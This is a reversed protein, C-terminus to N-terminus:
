FHCWTLWQCWTPASSEDLWLNDTMAEQNIRGIAGNQTAACAMAITCAPAILASPEDLMFAYVWSSAVTNVNKLRTAFHTGLTATDGIDGYATSPWPSGYPSTGLVIHLGGFLNWGSEALWGMQFPCSTSFAVYDLNGDTGCGKWASTEGFCMDQNILVGHPGAASATANDSPSCTAVDGSALSNACRHANNATWCRQNPNGCDADTNCYKTTDIRAGCSGHGSVYYITSATTDTFLNDQGGTRWSSEMMDTNYVSYNGYIHDAIGGASQLVNGFGTADAKTNCIDGYGPCMNTPQSSPCSAGPQTSYYQIYEYSYHWARAESAVLLASVL